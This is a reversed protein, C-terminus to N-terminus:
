ALGAPTSDVPQTWPTPIAAGRYRYRVIKVAGPDFLAIGDQEPWWGQRTYRRRLSKWSAKRHKARLWLVVRRWTYHRLYCFTANSVGHRFYTTWGRLVIELQRLLDSLSQNTGQRTIKKVKRTVSALAAKSPIPTSTVDGTAGSPTGGSASGSCTSVRTSEPSGRRRRRQALGRAPSSRRWRRACTKPRSALVTCWSWSTTPTGCWATPRWGTATAAPGISGPPAPRSGPGRATSM